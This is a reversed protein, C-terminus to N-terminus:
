VVLFRELALDALGNERDLDLLAVGLLLDERDVAVLHIEAVAGVADLGCRPQVELFDFLCSDSSSAASMAPMKWVGSRWLGNTSM